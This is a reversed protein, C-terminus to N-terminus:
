RGQINRAIADVIAPWLPRPLDHGMGDLLLLRAGPIARATARGGSPSVLPDERGHIVLAPVELRRLLRTRDWATQIAALQRSTGAPHYGREWARAALERLHQEPTPNTRAGIARMTAAFDEIYGERDSRARRLVLRLVRPHPLGVWPRGTHSMISTLSAVRGPHNIAILQAIMGGMSAGVVDAREIGLATLLGVADAAMDDLSYAAARRDRLILERLTPVRADRLITSRGVDRNDFRIVLRGRDALARCFDDEWVIMQSGLGMVLLLAPSGHDGFTQYCLELAGVHAFREETFVDTRTPANM